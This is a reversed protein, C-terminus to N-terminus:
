RGIHGSLDGSDEGDPDASVLLDGGGARRPTLTVKVRHTRARAAGAEVDGSVVWAKFGAKAKTDARLELAFELEVPGVVFEIDAGAARAAATLLEDRVASVADALEIEM